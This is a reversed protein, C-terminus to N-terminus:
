RFSSEKRLACSVFRIHRLMATVSEKGLEDTGAVYLKIEAMSRTPVIRKSRINRVTGEM